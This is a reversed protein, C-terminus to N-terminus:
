VCRNFLIPLPKWIRFADHACFISERVDSGLSQEVHTSSMLSYQLVYEPVVGTMDKQVHLTTICMDPRTEAM